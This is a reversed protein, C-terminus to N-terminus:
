YGGLGLTESIELSGNFTKGIEGAGGSALELGSPVIERLRLWALPILKKNELTMSLSFADGQILQTRSLRPEYSVETLALRAWARSVLAVILVLACIFTIWPRDDWLGVIGILILLIASLDSVVSGTRRARSGLPAAVGGSM